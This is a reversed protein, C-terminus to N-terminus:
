GVNSCSGKRSYWSFKQRFIHSIARYSKQTKSSTIQMGSIIKTSCSSPDVLYSHRKILCPSHAYKQHSPAQLRANTNQPSIRSLNSRHISITHIWQPHPAFIHNHQKYPKTTVASPTQSMDTIAQSQRQCARPPPRPPPFPHTLIEYISLVEM